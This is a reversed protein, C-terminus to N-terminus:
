NKIIKKTVSGKDSSINMMYVGASLDSINIQSTTEGSLKISKVTRGNLDSISVANISADNHSVTVIGTTPNPYVSFKSNSFEDIGLTTTVAFDDVALIYQNAASYCNFGVSYTGTVTPTFTGTAQTWTEATINANNFLETTQAAVTADNGIKVVLKEPFTAGAVRYKFAITYQQGATMEIKRSFLWANAAATASYQYGAYAVGQAAAPIAASVGYIGWNNGTGANFLSWGGDTEFGYSYPVTAPNYLTTFVLASTWSTADTASCRSRLYVYYTTGSTLAALNATYVTAATTGSAVTAATPAVTSTTFYYEYGVGPVTTAASWNVTASTATLATVNINTPRVCTASKGLRTEPRFNSATLTAPAATANIAGKLGNTLTNNCLATNATTAITGAANQHDFAVYIAGGTYTFATGGTFTTDFTGVTAPITLNANSVTTMGTIATAWTTSKTNTLDATNELYVTFNGSTAVNQATLLNFGIGTVVDGTVFGAAAMETASVLWVSRSYRSAGQPARGNQSTSGNNVVVTSFDTQASVFTAM